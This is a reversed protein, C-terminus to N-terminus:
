DTELYRVLCTFTPDIPGIFMSVPVPGPLKNWSVVLKMLPSGPYCAVPEADPALGWNFPQLDDDNM